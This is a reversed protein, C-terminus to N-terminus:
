REPWSRNHRLTPATPTPWGSASRWHEGTRRWAEAREGTESQLMGIGHESAALEAQYEAADSGSGIVRVLIARAQQLTTLAEGQNNLLSQLAAVARLSRALEVNSQLGSGPENAMRWVRRWSM